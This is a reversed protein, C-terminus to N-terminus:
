GAVRSRLVETPSPRPDGDGPEATVSLVPYRSPDVAATFRVDSRGQRDPHFTGASSRNPRGVRDGPGVFWLEYFEGKPLIPLEDTHFEIVRGAGTLFVDAQGTVSPSDPAQLQARLEPEPAGGDSGRVVTLALVTVALAGALAGLLLRPRRTRRRAAAALPRRPSQPSRRWPAPAFRHRM